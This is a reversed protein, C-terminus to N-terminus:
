YKIFVDGYNKVGRMLIVIDRKELPRECGEKGDFILTGLSDQIISAAAYAEKEAKMINKLEEDIDSDDDWPVQTLM